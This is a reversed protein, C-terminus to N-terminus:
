AGGVTSRTAGLSCSAIDAVSMEAQPTAPTAQAELEASVQTSLSGKLHGDIAAEALEFDGGNAKAEICVARAYARQGEPLAAITREQAETLGSTAAMAAFKQDMDNMAKM